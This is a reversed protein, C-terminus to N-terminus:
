YFYFKKSKTLRIPAHWYNVCVVNEIRENKKEVLCFRKEDRWKKMREVLCLHPFIFYKRDEWDQLIKTKTVYNNEITFIKKSQFNSIM